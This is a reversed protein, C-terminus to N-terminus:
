NKDAFALRPADDIALDLMSEVISRILFLFLDLIDLRYAFPM